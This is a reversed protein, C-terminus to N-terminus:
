LDMASANSAIPVKEAGAAPSSVSASFTEASSGVLAATALARAAIPVGDAGATSASAWASFLM